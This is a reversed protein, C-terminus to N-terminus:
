NRGIARLDAMAALDSTRATGEEIAATLTRSTENWARYGSVRRVYRDATVTFARDHLDLYDRGDASTLNEELPLGNYPAQTRAEQTTDVLPPLYLPTAWLALGVVPFVLLVRGRGM